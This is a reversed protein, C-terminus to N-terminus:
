MDVVKKTTWARIQKESLAQEFEEDESLTNYGDVNKGKEKIIYDPHIGKPISVDRGRNPNAKYHPFCYELHGGFSTDLQAAMRAYMEQRM